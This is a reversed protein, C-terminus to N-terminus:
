KNDCEIMEGHEDPVYIYIIESYKYYWHGKFCVSELSDQYDYDVRSACSCLAISLLILLPKM